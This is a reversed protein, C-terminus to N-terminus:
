RLWGISFCRVDFKANPKSQIAIIALEDLRHGASRQVTYPRFRVRESQRKFSAFLIDVILKAFEDTFKHLRITILAISDTYGAFEDDLEAIRSQM